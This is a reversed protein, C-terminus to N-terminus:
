KRLAPHVASRPSGCVDDYLLCRSRAGGVEARNHQGCACKQGPGSVKDRLLSSDPRGTQTTDKLGRRQLSVVYARIEHPHIESPEVCRRAVLWRVFSGCTYEYHELTKATCRSADRDLLFASVSPQLPVGVDVPHLRLHELM